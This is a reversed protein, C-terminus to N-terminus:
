CHNCGRFRMSGVGRKCLAQLSLPGKYTSRHWHSRFQKLWELICDATFKNWSEELAIDIFKFPLENTQWHSQSPHADRFRHFLAFNSVEIRHIDALEINNEVCVKSRRTARVCLLTTRLLAFSIRCRLWGSVVSESINKKTSLREALKKLVFHSQPAIGGTCTFVLPTFDGHEVNLIRERYERIKAAESQKFLQAPHIVKEFPSVVNVDFYAQRLESWFGLCKIDSRAESKKNASHLDFVEGTLPQLKPETEVTTYGADRMVQAMVDRVENHQIQRLGGHQCDLSHQLSFPGGCAGCSLPLDLLDWGYRMYCADVFDRKHLITGHDYSPVATMWSSAGKEGAAKLAIKM